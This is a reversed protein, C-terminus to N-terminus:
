TTELPRPLALTVTPSLVTTALLLHAAFFAGVLLVHEWELVFEEKLLPMKTLLPLGMLHPLMLYYFNTEKWCTQQNARIRGGAPLKESGSTLDGILLINTHRLFKMSMEGAPSSRRLRKLFIQIM